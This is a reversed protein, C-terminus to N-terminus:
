NVSLVDMARESLIFLLTDAKSTQEGRIKGAFSYIDEFIFKNYLWM